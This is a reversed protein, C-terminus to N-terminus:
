STRVQPKDAPAVYFQGRLAENERRLTEVRQQLENNQQTLENNRKKSRELKKNIPAIAANIRVEARRNASAKEREAKVRLEKAKRKAENAAADNGHKMAEKAKADLKKCEAEAQMAQEVNRAAIDGALKTSKVYHSLGLENAITQVADDFARIKAFQDPKDKQNTVFVDDRSLHTIMDEVNKAGKPGLWQDLLIQNLAESDNEHLLMLEYRRNVDETDIPVMGAMTPVVMALFSEYKCWFRGVYQQDNLVLVKSTIFLLSMNQLM